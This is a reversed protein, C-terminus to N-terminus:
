TPVPKAIPEVRGRVVAAYSPAGLQPNQRNTGIKSELRQVVEQLKQIATTTTNEQDNPATSFKKEWARWIATLANRVRRPTRGNDLHTVLANFEDELPLKQREITKPTTTTATTTTTSEAVDCMESDVGESAANRARVPFPPPATESRQPGM